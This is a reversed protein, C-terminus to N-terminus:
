DDIFQQIKNLLVRAQEDDGACAAALGRANWGIAVFFTRPLPACRNLVLFEHFYLGNPFSIPRATVTAPRRNATRRGVISVMAQFRKFCEAIDLLKDCLVNIAQMLRCSVFIDNIQM